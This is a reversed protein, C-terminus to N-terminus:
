RCGVPRFNPREHRGDYRAFDIQRCRIGGMVGVFEGAGIKFSIDDVASVVADGSGYTKTLNEAVIYSM